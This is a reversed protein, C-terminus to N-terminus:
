GLRKIQEDYEQHTELHTRQIVQIGNSMEKMIAMTKKKIEFLETRKQRDLNKRQNQNQAGNLKDSYETEIRHMELEQLKTQYFDFNLTLNFVHPQISKKYIEERPPVPCTCPLNTDKLRPCTESCTSLNHGNDIEQHVRLINRYDRKWRVLYKMAEKM